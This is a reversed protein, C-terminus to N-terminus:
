EDSMWENSMSLREYICVLSYLKVHEGNEQNHFQPEYYQTASWARVWQRGTALWGLFTPALIWPLM